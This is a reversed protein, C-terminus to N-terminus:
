RIRVGDKNLDHSTQQSLKPLAISNHLSRLRTTGKMEDLVERVENVSLVTPLYHKRKARDLKDLWGLDLELVQKYM